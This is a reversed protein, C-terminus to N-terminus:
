NMHVSSEYRITVKRSFKQLRAVQAIQATSTLCTIKELKDERAMWCLAAVVAKTRERIQQEFRIDKVFLERCNEEDIIVSKEDFSKSAIEELIKKAMVKRDFKQNDLAAKNLEDMSRQPIYVMQYEKTLELISKGESKIKFLYSTDVLLVNTQQDGVSLEAAGKNSTIPECVCQENKPQQSNVMSKRAKVNNRVLKLLREYGEKTTYHETRLKRQITTRHCGTLEEIDEWTASNNRIQYIIDKINIAKKGM